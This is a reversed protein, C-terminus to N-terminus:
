LNVKKNILSILSGVNEMNIVERLKFKIGFKKEVEDIMIFNTMSDWNAVSAATMDDTIVIDETKFVDKFIATLKTKIEFDDM